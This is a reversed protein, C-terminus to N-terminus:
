LNINVIAAVRCSSNKNGLSALADQTRLSQLSSCIYEAPVISYYCCVHVSVRVCSVRSSANAAYEHRCVSFLIKYHVLLVSMREESIHSNEEDICCM